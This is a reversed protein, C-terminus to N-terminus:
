LILCDLGDLRNITLQGLNTSVQTMNSMEDGSGQFAGIFVNSSGGNQPRRNSANTVRPESSSTEALLCIPVFM